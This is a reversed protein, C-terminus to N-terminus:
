CILMACYIHKGAGRCIKEFVVSSTVMHPVLDTCLWLAYVTLFYIICLMASLSNIESVYHHLYIQFILLWLCIVNCLFSSYQVIPM